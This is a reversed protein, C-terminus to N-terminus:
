YRDMTALLHQSIKGDIRLGHSRQYARIASRTRPGIVGDIEGHYYGAQALGEQVEVVISGGAGYPEGYVPQNYYSYPSYYPYPYGWYWYPYFPFGFTDFFVVDRDRFRRHHWNGNWHNFASPAFRANPAGRATSPASRMPAAVAGASGHPAATAFSAAFTIVPFCILLPRLRANM